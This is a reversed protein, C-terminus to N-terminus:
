ALNQHVQVPGIGLKQLPEAVRGADGVVVVAMRDPRVAESAVRMVDDRSVAAIRDRYRAFYDDPLGFVVLEAIRAAVASTTELRLPFVGRLYDRASDLEDGTPGDERLQRVEQLIAEIAPATVETAVATDVTFPGARRRFAFGSRIGYTFGHHERLSMNLRSTFAGGLITNMVVLPFYDATRRDVGVHALRLESQVSGPRDVVYVVTADSRPRVRFESSHAAPGRWDGFHQDVLARARESQVRGTLIIAASGAAYRDRHFARLQGPGLERVTAERGILPRGYPVDDDFVFRAAADSALAGPEKRRQLIDALQEDRLRDVQDAPFGPNRVVDALLALAPELRDAHVTVGISAADWSAATELEVGLRELEWALTDVDRTTTGGELAEATLRAVGALEPPEADAGGRVIVEATVLPMDGYPVVVLEATQDDGLRERHVAPFDFPKVPGPEPPRARDLAQETSM